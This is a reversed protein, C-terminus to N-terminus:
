SSKTRNCIGTSALSSGPLLLCGLPDVPVPCSLCDLSHTRRLWSVTSTSTRPYKISPSGGEAGTWRSGSKRTAQKALIGSCFTLHSGATNPSTQLCCKMKWITDEVFRIKKRLHQIYFSIIDKICLNERERDNNFDFLSEGTDNWNFALKLSDPTRALCVKYQWGLCSSPLDKYFILAESNMIM